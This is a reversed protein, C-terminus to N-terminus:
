IGAENSMQPNCEVLQSKETMRALDDAAVESRSAASGRGMGDACETFREGSSRRSARRSAVVNAPMAPKAPTADSRLKARTHGFSSSAFNSVFPIANHLNCLAHARTTCADSPYAIVDAPIEM